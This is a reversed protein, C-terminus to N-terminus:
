ALQQQRCRFLRDPLAQGRGAPWGRSLTQWAYAQGQAVAAELPCGRALLAAVAAALTCGSGHHGGPLRPWASTIAALGPQYLRNTVAVTAQHGGTILVAGCGRSLLWDACADLPQLGSLRKAEESNPTVLRTLKLLQDRIAGLLDAGALKAGGGAALVPDLVVPIGRHEVLLQAIVAAVEADGILGIKIAQVPMDALLTRAQRAVFDPAVPLMETVNGTDQVTLCTIISAAACGQAAIAEIDAQVGAGGSPDHGSFCLVVPYRTHTVPDKPGPVQFGAM